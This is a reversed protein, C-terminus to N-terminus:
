PLRSYTDGRVGNEGRQGYDSKEYRKKLTPPAGHAYQVSANKLVGPFGAKRRFFDQKPARKGQVSFPLFTAYSYMGEM